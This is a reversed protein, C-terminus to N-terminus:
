PREICFVWVGPKFTHEPFQAVILKSASAALKKKDLPSMLNTSHFIVFTFYNNSLIMEEAADLPPRGLCHHVLTRLMMMPIRFLCDQLFCFWHNVPLFLLRQNMDFFDWSFFLLLAITPLIVWLLEIYLTM